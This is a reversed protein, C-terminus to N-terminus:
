PASTPFLGQEIVRAPFCSFIWGCSLNKEQSVRKYFKGFAVGVEANGIGPGDVTFGELRDHSDLRFGSSLLQKPYQPGPHFDKPPQPSLGAYGGVVRYYEYKPGEGVDLAFWRTLESPKDYEHYSVLTLTYRKDALGPYMARLFEHAWAVYNKTVPVPEQAQVRMFSVAMVMLVFGAVNSRHKM